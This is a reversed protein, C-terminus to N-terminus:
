SEGGIDLRFTNHPDLHDLLDLDDENAGYANKAENFMDKMEEYDIIRNALMGSQVYGIWRHLRLESWTEANKTIQDCMWLLHPPHLVEPLNHEGPHSQLILDICRQSMAVILLKSNRM